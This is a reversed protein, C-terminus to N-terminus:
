RVRGWNVENWRFRAPRLWLSSPRKVARCIAACETWIFYPRNCHSILDSSILHLSHHSCKSRGCSVSSLNWELDCRGSWYLVQLFYEYIWPYKTALKVCKLPVLETYTQIYGYISPIIFRAGVNRHPNVSIFTYLVPETINRFVRWLIDTSIRINKFHISKLM